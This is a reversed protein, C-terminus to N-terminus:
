QDPEKRAKRRHIRPRGGMKGREHPDRVPEWAQLDDERIKWVGAAGGPPVEVRAGLRGNRIARQVSQRTIGKIAAAETVSYEEFMHVNYCRIYNRAVMNFRMGFDACAWDLYVVRMVGIQTVSASGRDDSM